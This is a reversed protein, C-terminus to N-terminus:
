ERSNQVSQIIVQISATFMVIAVIIVALPELKARGRPYLYPDHKEMKQTTTWIVISSIIDVGSEIVSGIVSLSNSLYAIVAKAILLVIIIAFSAQALM